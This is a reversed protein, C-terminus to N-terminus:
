RHPRIFPLTVIDDGFHLRIGYFGAPIEHLSLRLAQESGTAPPTSSRMVTTGSADILDYTGTVGDTATYLIVVDDGSSSVALGSVSVRRGFGSTGLTCGELLIVGSQVGVDAYPGQLNTSASGHAEVTNVPNGGSLGVCEFRILDTGVIPSRRGSLRATYTGTEPDASELAVTVDTGNFEETLSVGTIVIATPPVNLTAVLEAVKDAETLPPNARLDVEFVQGVRSSADSLHLRDPIEVSDSVGQGFVFVPIIGGNTVFRFTASYNRKQDPCFQFPFTLNSGSPLLLGDGSIVTLSTIFASDPGDSHVGYLVVDSPLNESFQVRDITCEALKTDPMQLEGVIGRGIVDRAIEACSEITVVSTGANSVIEMRDIFCGTDNPLFEFGVVAQDSPGLPGPLPTTLTFGRAASVNIDTIRLTDSGDNRITTSGPVRTGVTVTNLDLRQPTVTLVPAKQDACVIIPVRISGETTVLTLTDDPCGIDDIRIGFKVYVSTGGSLEIPILPVIIRTGYRPLVINEIICSGPADNLVLVSDIHEVGTQITGLELTEPMVILDSSQLSPPAIQAFWLIAMCSLLCPRLVGASEIRFSM